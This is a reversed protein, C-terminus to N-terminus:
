KPWHCPETTLPVQHWAQCGSSLGLGPIWLTSVSCLSRRTPSHCGRGRMTSLAKLVVFSPFSFSFNIYTDKCHLDPLDSHKGLGHMAFALGMQFNQGSDVCSKGLGCMAFAPLEQKPTRGWDLQVCSTQPRKERKSVCDKERTCVLSLGFM